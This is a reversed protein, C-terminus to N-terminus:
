HSTLRRLPRPRNDEDPLMPNALSRRTWLIILPPTETIEVAGDCDDTLHDRSLQSWIVMTPSAVQDSRVFAILGALKLRILARDQIHRLPTSPGTRDQDNSDYDTGANRTWEYGGLETIVDNLCMKEDITHNWWLFQHMMMRRMDKNTTPIVPKPQNTATAM